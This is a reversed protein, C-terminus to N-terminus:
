ESDCYILLPQDNHDEVFDALFTHEVNELDIDFPINSNLFKFRLDSSLFTRERGEVFHLSTATLGVVLPADFRVGRDIMIEDAEDM